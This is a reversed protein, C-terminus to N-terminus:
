WFRYYQSLWIVALVCGWLLLSKYWPRGPEGNAAVMEPRWTLEATAEAPPPPTTAAIIAVLGMTLVQAICAVYLWHLDVGAAPLGFALALQIVLGGLLGVVAARYNVRRWFIGMLMVSIFPTALYTVATQFFIFIGGLQSVLPCILTAVVLAAVATIRGVRMLEADTAGPKIYRRYVDLSFITATSNTLASITSMIAALFGALIIGRLGWEPAFTRLAFPFALDGMALPEAKHMVNVWHYVVLGLFCTVLPRFLNIFGAFILGMMADWRTRACLVRQIMVQNGAQYFIFLGFSAFVLGLFPAVPDGPPLYLHFREPSAEAMAKWGGPIHHLSVFFLVMGGGLLMVCQLADTWMVSMMGGKISYAGVLVVMAWLVLHLNLGTLQSFALGGGYLVSVLFVLVYAFLMVISYINACAPGFRRNLFEPITTIRAQLYLPFIFIIALFDCLMFWEWNAVGMGSNYTAGVTGILQESSVSTSVFAAGIIFWPLRKSALFYGEADRSQRRSVWLGVVVTLVISGVIIVVDITSLAFTVASEVDAGGGTSM